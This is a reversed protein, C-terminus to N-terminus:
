VRFEHIELTNLGSDEDEDEDFVTWLLYKKDVLKNMFENMM